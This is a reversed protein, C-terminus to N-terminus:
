KRCINLVTATTIGYKTALEKTTMKKSDKRLAEKTTASLHIHKKRTKVVVVVKKKKKEKKVKKYVDIDGSLSKLISKMDVDVEQLAKIVGSRILHFDSLLKIAPAITSPHTTMGRPIRVIPNIRKKM